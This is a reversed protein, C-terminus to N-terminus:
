CLLGVASAAKRVGRWFGMFWVLEVYVRVLLVFLVMSVRRRWTPIVGKGDCLRVLIGLIVLGEM